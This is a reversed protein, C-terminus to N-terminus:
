FNHTTSEHLSDNIYVEFIVSGEGSVPIELPSDTSKHISEYIRSSIDGQVKYVTVKMSDLEPPLTFRLKFNSAVPEERKINVVFDVVSKRSVETGPKISQDLVINNEYENNSEHTINGLILDKVILDTKVDEIDAGAYTPMLFKEPGISIVYDITTGEDVSIGATISQRIVFGNPYESYEQDFKGELLGERELILKVKDYSEGVLNPIVVKRPGKSV